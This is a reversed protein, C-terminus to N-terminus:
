VRLDRLGARPQERHRLRIRDPGLRHIDAHAQGITGVSTMHRVLGAAADLEPFYPPVCSLTVALAGLVTLWGLVKLRRM